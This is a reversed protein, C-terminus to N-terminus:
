DLLIFNLINIIAIPREIDRAYSSCKTSTILLHIEHQGETRIHM